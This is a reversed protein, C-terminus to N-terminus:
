PRGAQRGYSELVFREGTPSMVVNEYVTVVQGTDLPGARHVRGSPWRIEIEDVQNAAGFGLLMTESNQAAFGEGLRHERVRQLTGARALIRVGVGDRSSWEASAEATNGGVFRLALYEGTNEGLQNSFLQLLPANANVLALDARGDHEFDLIAFARSDAVSDLGSVGSVEQFIGEGDQIFTHNREHGSFSAGARIQERILARPPGGDDLFSGAEDSRM